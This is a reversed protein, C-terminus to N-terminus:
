IDRIRERLEAAKDIVDKPNNFSSICLKTWSLLALLFRDLLKKETMADPYSGLRATGVGKYLAM